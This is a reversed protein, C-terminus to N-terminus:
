SSKWFVQTQNEADCPLKSRDTLETGPAGVGEEPGMLM